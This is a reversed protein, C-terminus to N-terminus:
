LIQLGIDVPSLYTFLIPYMIDTVNELVLKVFRVVPFAGAIASGYKALTTRRSCQSPESPDVDNGSLPGSPLTGAVTADGKDIV